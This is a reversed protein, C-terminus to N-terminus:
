EKLTKSPLPFLNRIETGKKCLQGPYRNRNDKIGPKAGNNLLAKVVRPYNLRVATHLPTEAVEACCGSRAKLHNVHAYKFKSLFADLLKKEAAAKVSDASADKTAPSLAEEIGRGPIVETLFIHTLRETKESESVTDDQIASVRHIDSLPSTDRHIDSLPLSGRHCDSLPLSGYPHDEAIDAHQSREVDYDVRDNRDIEIDHKGDTCCGGCGLRSPTNGM